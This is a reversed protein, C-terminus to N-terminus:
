DLDGLKYLINGSLELVKAMYHTSQQVFEPTDLILSDIWDKIYTFGGRKYFKMCNEPGGESMIKILSNISDSYNNKSKSKLLIKVCFLSCFLADFNKIQEYKKHTSISM